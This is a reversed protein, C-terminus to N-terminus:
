DELRVTRVATRLAPSELLLVGASASGLLVFFEKLGFESIPIPLAAAGAATRLARAGFESADSLGLRKSCKAGGPSGRPRPENRGLHASEGFGLPFEVACLRLWLPMFKM